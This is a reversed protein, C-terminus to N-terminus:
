KNLLIVKDFIEDPLSDHTIFFIQFNKYKSFKSIMQLVQPLITQNKDDLGAAPEDLVFVPPTGFASIKSSIEWGLSLILREGVSLFKDIIEKGDNFMAIFTTDELRVRFNVDFIELIDNLILQQGKLCNEVFIKIAGNTSFVSKLKSLHIFVELDKELEQKRKEYETIQQKKITIITEVNNYEYMLENVRELIQEIKKKKHLLQEEEENKVLEAYENKLKILRNKEDNIMNLKNLISSVTDKTSKETSDLFMLKSSSSSLNIKYEDVDKRTIELNPIEMNQINKVGWKKFIHRITKIERNIIERTKERKSVLEKAKDIKENFNKIEKLLHLFKDRKRRFFDIKEKLPLELDGVLVTRCVPCVKSDLIQLNENIKNDFFWIKKNIKEILRNIKKSYSPSIYKKINFRNIQAQIVSIPIRVRFLHLIKKIREELDFRIAVLQEYKNLLKEQEEYYEKKSLYFNYDKKALEIENRINKLKDEVMKMENDYMKIQRDFFEINKDAEKVINIAKLKLEIQEREKKIDELNSDGLLFNIYSTIEKIKQELLSLENELSNIKDNIDIIKSKIEYESYRALKENIKNNIKESKEQGFMKGFYKIRESPRMEIYYDLKRQPIFSYELLKSDVVNFFECIKDLVLMAGTYKKDNEQDLFYVNNSLLDRHIIVKEKKPNYLSIEVYSETIKEDTIRIMDKKTRGPVDGLIAYRIANVLNSKGAGNPGRICNFHESFDFYADKFQFVNVIKIDKIM